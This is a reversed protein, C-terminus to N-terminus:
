EGDIKAVVLARLELTLESLDIESQLQETM